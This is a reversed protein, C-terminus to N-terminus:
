QPEGGETALQCARIMIRAVRQGEGDAVLMWERWRTATAAAEQESMAPVGSTIAIWAQEALGSPLKVHGTALLRAVELIRVSILEPRDLLAQAEDHIGDVGGVRALEMLERLARAARLVDARAGLAFELREMMADFGSVMRAVRTLAAAHSPAGARLADLLEGIGFLGLLDVLEGRLSSAVPGPRSCFESAHVLAEDAADPNWADALAALAKAHVERLAGTAATQALLGVVPVVAAFLDAHETSMRQALETALKWTAKRDGSLQDAKTLVAVATGGTLRQGGPGSRFVRVAAAEDDRLPGNVCFVLADAGVASDQTDTLLRATVASTEVTTSAMGPTDVLTWHELLGVPLAVEVTRIGEVPFSFTDPLSGSAVPVPEPDSGDRFVARAWRYADHRFTYVVRTCEGGATPSVAVELLANILTSKGASLRGVVAVRLPMHLRESVGRGASALTEDDSASAREALGAVAGALPSLGRALIAM